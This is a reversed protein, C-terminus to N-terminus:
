KKAARIDATHEIYHSYTEDAILERSLSPTSELLLMLEDHTESFQDRIEDLTLDAAEAVAALNEDEFGDIYDPENGADLAVITDIVTQEWFSMHAMVDKVSWEGVTGPALIQEDSLQRTAKLLDLWAKSVDQLISLREDETITM